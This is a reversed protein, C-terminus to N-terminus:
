GAIPWYVETRLTQQPTVEDNDIYVEWPGDGVKKGREAIWSELRPCEASLTEYSREGMVFDGPGNRPVTKRM